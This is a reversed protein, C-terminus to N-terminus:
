FLIPIGTEERIPTTLIARVPGETAARSSGPLASGKENRARKFLSAKSELIDSEARARIDLRSRKIIPKKKSVVECARHALPACGLAALNATAIVILPSGIAAGVLTATLAVGIVFLTLGIFLRKNLTVLEAARHFPSLKNREITASRVNPFRGIATEMQYDVSRALLVPLSTTRQTQSIEQHTTSREQDGQLLPAALDPLNLALHINNPTIMQIATIMMAYANASDIIPTIYIQLSQQNHLKQIARIMEEMSALQKKCHAICHAKQREFEQLNFIDLSENLM